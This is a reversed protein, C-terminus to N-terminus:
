KSMLMRWKRGGGISIEAVEAAVSPRVSLRRATTAGKGGEGAKRAADARQRRRSPRPDIGGGALRSGGAARATAALLPGRRARGGNLTSLVRETQHAPLSPSPLAKRQPFVCRDAARLLLLESSDGEKLGLEHGVVYSRVAAM